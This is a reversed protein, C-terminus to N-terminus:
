PSLITWPDPCHLLCSPLGPIISISFTQMLTSSSHNHKLTNSLSYAGSHNAFSFTLTISSSFQNDRYSSLNPIVSSSEARHCTLFSQSPTLMIAFSSHNFFHLCSPLHPIVSSIYANHYTLFSQLITLM